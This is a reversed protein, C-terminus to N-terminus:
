YGSLCNKCCRGCHCPHVLQRHLLLTAAMMYPRLLLLSPRVESLAAFVLMARELSSRIVGMGARFFEELLEVSLKDIAIDLARRGEGDVASLDVNKGSKGALLMIRLVDVHELEVVYHIPCRGSRDKQNPECMRHTLYRAMKERKGRM